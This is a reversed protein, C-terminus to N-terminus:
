KKVNLFSNFIGQFSTINLPFELFVHLFSLFYLAKIGIGYDYVYLFVSFGWLILTTVLTKKPVTHWKIISTKSFWNLYHYTYSFAIFRMVIFGANTKYILVDYNGSSTQLGFFDILFQNLLNFLDYSKVVYDSIEYHLSPVKIIFFSIAILVLSIVSLFGAFSKQKLVGYLMFLWTFVLVHIITPLFVGIWIFYSEGTVASSIGVLALIALVVRYLNDKLFVFVLSMFLGFLIINPVLSNSHKTNIFSFYFVLCCLLTLFAFDYKGKTYYNKKHLWGIETLYHLPGLVAYVFLFLEFPFVFALLASFVMLGINAIHIQDNTLTSIKIL